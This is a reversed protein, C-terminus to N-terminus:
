RDSCESQEGKWQAATQKYLYVCSYLPLYDCCIFSLLVVVPESDVSADDIATVLFCYIITTM